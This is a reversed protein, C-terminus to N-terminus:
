GLDQRAPLWGSLSLLDHMQNIPRGQHPILWTPANTPGAAALDRINRRHADAIKSQLAILETLQTRLTDWEGPGTQPIASAASQPQSEVRNVLFGAFCMQHTKLQELFFLAESRAAPSPTTVLLFRTDSARLLTQVELSRSQFGSWLHRFLDFFQAIEGITSQGVLTRLVRGIAESGLELARWGGRSGSASLWRMVTGDMMNAMREPAQLFDLANRTPPTDVVIVDYLGCTALERVKEAAMYEHVGGLKTCAFQFYRNALIKEAAETSESFRHILGEFTEKVDLMVAHCTGLADPISIPTPQGGIEGISLSDALRKAPDVTLVCVRDGANAWALALAASTTTKGVGGSGCCMIVQATM